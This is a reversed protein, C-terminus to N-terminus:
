LDIGSAARGSGKTKKEDEFINQEVLAFDTM